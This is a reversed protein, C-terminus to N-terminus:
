GYMGGWSDATNTLYGTFVEDGERLGSKIEVNSEDSLGTEVVVVFFGEPVDWGEQAEIAREDPEGKVFCVTATGSNRFASPGTASGSFFPEAVAMAMGGPVANDMIIVGGEPATMGDGGEPAMMGDELFGGGADEFGADGGEQSFGDESFEGSIVGDVFDQDVYDNPNFDNDGYVNQGEALTVNKVAQIPVVLCDNSQSAIFTYNLYSGTMLKGEPNDVVVTAPFSAIGNESKATLSVQDVVGMYYNGMQDQIDVFMGNSVFGINREDISIDVMMTSTDAIYISSGSAVEEGLVLGCTLVRGSIPASAHYNDLKKQADELAEVAKDVDKQAQRLSNQKAAIDASADTDGLQVLAQGARVDAYNMLNASLVPGGVKVTVKTTEFFELTGSQYPYIPTGDAATLDASATMGETLTGPNNLVFVVEFMVSGEPVVRRVYNIQEVTGPVSSMSAPLSIQASQGVSIQGEYAYSYYLHLRLKTDNVVTAVPDGVQADYGPKLSTNVDMLKGAHPATVTLNAVNEYLKNLEKNYDSVTEQAKRINEQAATVGERAASDDLNYLLQGKEVYDGEKVFLELVRYGADPTVTASTKARANGMGSVTSQISSRMVPQTMAEGLNSDAPKFVYKRLFYAGTGIVAAAVAFGVVRRVIRRRKQKQEHTAPSKGKKQPPASVSETAPVQQESM